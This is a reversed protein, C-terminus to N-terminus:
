IEEILSQRSLAFDNAFRQRDNFSRSLELAQEKIIFDQNKQTELLELFFVLLDKIYPSLYEPIGLHYLFPARQSFSLSDAYTVIIGAIKGILGNLEKEALEISDAFLAFARLRFDKRAFSARYEFGPPPHNNLSFLDFKM